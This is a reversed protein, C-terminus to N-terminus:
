SLCILSINSDTLYTLSSIGSTGSPKLQTGRHLCSNYYAKIEDKESRVIIASLDGVDYVYYDGIEPIHDVHCAWQWVRSWMHDNEKKAFEESIYREFPIDADSIFEYSEELIPAPAGTCDRSVLEKTSPHDPCRAEGPKLNKLESM